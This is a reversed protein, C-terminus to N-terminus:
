YDYASILQQLVPLIAADMNQRFLQM